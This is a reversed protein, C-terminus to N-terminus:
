FLFLTIIISSSAWSDTYAIRASQKQPNKKTTKNQKTKKGRCMSKTTGNKAPRKKYCYKGKKELADIKAPPVALM